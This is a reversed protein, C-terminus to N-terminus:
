FQWNCRINLRTFHSKHSAWNTYLLVHCKNSLKLRCSYVFKLTINIKSQTSETSWMKLNWWRSLVALTERQVLRLLQCYPVAARLIYVTQPYMHQHFTRSRPYFVDKDIQFFSWTSFCVTFWLVYDSYLIDHAKLALWCLYVVYNLILRHLHISFTQPLPPPLSTQGWTGTGRSTNIAM